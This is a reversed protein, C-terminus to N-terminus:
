KENLKGIMNMSELTTIIDQPIMATIDSIDQISIENKSVNIRMQNVFCQVLADKWYAQYSLRGLDSLPKEPSGPVGEKKSLLYSFGILFRGFGQRQYQPLTMLCSLNFKQICYKEKSFYGVIHKGRADKVTLIYFLFPEVDHYLTKHQLFLKALLCLNQCFTKNINGDVEYISINGSNYIEVGPPNYYDCKNLHNALSDHSKMYKLCFECIYLKTCMSYENPYPSTYWTAVEYQGIEI